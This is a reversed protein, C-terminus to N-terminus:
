QGEELTRGTIRGLTIEELVVRLEVVEVVAELVVRLEVVLMHDGLVIDELM